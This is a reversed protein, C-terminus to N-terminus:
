QSGHQKSFLKIETIQLNKFGIAEVVAFDTKKASIIYLM